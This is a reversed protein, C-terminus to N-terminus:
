NNVERKKQNSGFINNKHNDFISLHVHMGSGTENM